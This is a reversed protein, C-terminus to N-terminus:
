KSEYYRKKCIEGKDIAKKLNSKLISRLESNETFRKAEIYKEAAERFYVYASKYNKNKTHMDAMQHYYNKLRELAEPSDEMTILFLYNWSGSKM